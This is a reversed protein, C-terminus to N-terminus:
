VFRINEQSFSKGALIIESSKKEVLKPLNFVHVHYTM